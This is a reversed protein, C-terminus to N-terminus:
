VLGSGTARYFCGDVGGGRKRRPRSLRGMNRIPCMSHISDPLEALSKRRALTPSARAHKTSVLRRAASVSACSLVARM